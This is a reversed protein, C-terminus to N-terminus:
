AQTSKQRERQANRYVIGPVVEALGRLVAEESLGTADAFKKIQEDPILKKIEVADAPKKSIQARWGELLGDLGDDHARKRVVPIGPAGDKGMYESVASALGSHDGHARTFFDAATNLAGPLNDDTRDRDHM